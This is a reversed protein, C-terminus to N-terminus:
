LNGAYVKFGYVKALFVSTVKQESGLDCLVAKDKIQHNKLLEEELKILNPGM